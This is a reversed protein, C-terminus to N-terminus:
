PRSYRHKVNPPFYDVDGTALLRVRPLQREVPVYNAFESNTVLLRERIARAIEEAHEPGATVGPALEVVVGLYPNHDQDAGVEQVFKGTLLPAVTEEELAASVQEPFVNAGFYSVTFLARGFVWVFPLRAARDSSGQAALPDFGHERCFAIMNPYSMVGGEDGLRYRLLPAAGDATFLLTGEHTEFYRTLPDYQVLTPLRSNGFLARAVTPHDALFRRIVVTLPTENGLVGADATGYLAVTDSEPRSSGARQGVLARWQESFVEGALLMRVRLASWDVGRRIGEDIVGKVFPPYGALVVQDFMAGLEAVVRLIEGNSNGPTAVTIPYGKAALHRCADATYMGGVWNGLPFCVIVLTRHRDADFVGVLAHEFRATVALEDVASRAWVTPRSSSGSSVAVTEVDDLRGSRCRQALEHRHVYNEKTIMPVQAFDAPTRVSGPHVGHERLFARYAPVQEASAAFLSIAAAFGNEPEGRDDVIVPESRHFTGLRDLWRRAKDGTM